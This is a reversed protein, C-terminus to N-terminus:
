QEVAESTSDTVASEESVPQADATEQTAPLDPSDPELWGNEILIDIARAAAQTTPHQRVLRRLTLRAGPGDNRELYWFAAELKEAGLAEKIQDSWEPMELRQADAPYARQFGAIQERANLLSSADYEPGHYLGINAFIRGAFAKSQNSGGPFNLLYLDYGIRAMPMDRHDFYYDALEIAAQEALASGPMREQARILLEIGEDRASFLRMGLFKKRMGGLYLRAIEMEREVSLPFEESQAFQRAIAEYDYLARFEEGLAVRADGRALLATSVWRNNTSANRELWPTLIAAAQGPRDDALYARAKAILAEDSGPEPIHTQVWGAEPDLEYKTSQAAAQPAAQALTLLTILSLTTPRADM